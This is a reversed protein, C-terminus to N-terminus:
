INVIRLQFVEDAERECSRSYPAMILEEMLLTSPLLASEWLLPLGMLGVVANLAVQMVTLFSYHMDLYLYLYM